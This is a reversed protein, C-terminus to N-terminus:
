SDDEEEEADSYEIIAVRSRTSVQSGSVARAASPEVSNGAGRGMSPSSGGRGGLARGGRGAMPDVHRSASPASRGVDSLFANAVGGFDADDTAAAAAAARDIDEDDDEYRVASPRTPRAPRTNSGPTLARKLASLDGGRLQSALDVNPSHAEALPARAERAPSGSAVAAYVASIAAREETAARVPLPSTADAAIRKLHRWLVDAAEADPAFRARLDDHSMEALMEGDTRRFRSAYDVLNLQTLMSAVDATTMRALPVAGAAAAASTTTAAKTTPATTGEANASKSPSTARPAVPALHVWRRHKAYYDAQLQQVRQLLEDEAAGAAAARRADDETAAGGRGAPPVYVSLPKKASAAAAGVGPQEGDSDDASTTSDDESGEEMTTPLRARADRMIQQVRAAVSDRTVNFTSPKPDSPHVLDATSEAVIPGVAGPSVAPRRQARAARRAARREGAAKSLQWMAFRCRQRCLNADYADIEDTSGLHGTQIFARVDAAVREWADDGGEPDADHRHSLLVVFRDLFDPDSLPM